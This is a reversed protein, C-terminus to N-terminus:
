HGLPQLGEAPRIGIYQKAGELWVLIVSLAVLLLGTTEDEGRGQGYFLGGKGGSLGYAARRNKNDM